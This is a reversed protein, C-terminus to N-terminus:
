RIKESFAIRSHISIPLMRLHKIPFAKPSHLSSGRVDRRMKKLKGTADHVTGGLTRRFIFPGRVPFLGQKGCAWGMVILTVAAHTCNSCIETCNYM